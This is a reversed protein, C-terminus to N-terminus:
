LLIHQSRHEVWKICELLEKTQMMKEQLFHADVYEIKNKGLGINGLNKAADDLKVLYVGQGAFSGSAKATRKISSKKNNIIDVGKKCIPQLNDDLDRYVHSCNEGCKDKIIGDIANSQVTQINEKSESSELAYSFSPLAIESIIFISMIIAITSKFINKFKNYKKM